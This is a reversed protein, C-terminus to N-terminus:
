TTRRGKTPAALLMHFRGTGKGIQRHETLTLGASEIAQVIESIARIRFGYPQFSRMADPDGLGIVAQGSSKLANAIERFARDVEPVFYVTHTTIVGDLVAAGFPLDTMSARHLALRGRSIENSFRRGAGSLM